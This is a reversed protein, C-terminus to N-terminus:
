RDNAYFTSKDHHWVVTRCNQPLPGLVEINNSTWSRLTLELKSWAPLFVEQRYTVVDECEHGDVFQGKPDKTWRYNM